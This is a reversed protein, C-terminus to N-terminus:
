IRLEGPRVGAETRERATLEFARRVMREYAGSMRIGRRSMMRRATEVASDVRLEVPEAGLSKAYVTFPPVDTTVAGYLHSFAGVRKGSFVTTGIATKVHDGVAPGLFTMGTDRFGRAARVRVIGYTNKLNSFTTGAGLNVWEGVYSHGVYGYHRKNSFGLFVSREVEGGVRCNEGFYSAVVQSGPFVVSSRGILCPGEVRSGSMVVAGEGVVIPGKRVDFTVNPEVVAGEKVVLRRREGLVHVPEHVEGEWEESGVEELDSGLLEVGVAALDWFGGLKRLGVVERVEVALETVALADPRLTRGEGILGSFVEGRLRAGVLEGGCTMAVRERMLPELARLVRDTPPFVPNVVVVDLSSIGDADNIVCDPRRERLVEALHPRTLVIPSGSGRLWTERYRDLLTKSGVILECFARTLTLPEFDEVDPELVVLLWDTSGM